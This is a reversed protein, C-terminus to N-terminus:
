STSATSFTPPTNPIPRSSPSARFRRLSPARGSGDTASSITSAGRAKARRTAAQRIPIGARSTSRATSGRRIATVGRIGGSPAWPTGHRGSFSRKTLLRLMRTGRADGDHRPRRGRCVRPHRSSGRWAWAGDHQEWFLPHRIGEAQAWAWDEPRWWRDDAYGGAEVFEFFAANTVDHRQIAFAGFRGDRGPARQGV